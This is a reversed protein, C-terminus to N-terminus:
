DGFAYPPIGLSAVLWSAAGAAAPLVAAGGVIGLGVVVAGMFAANFLFWELYVGTSPPQATNLTRLWAVGVLWPLVGGLVVGLVSFPLMAAAAGAGVLLPILRPLRVPGQSGLGLGVGLALGGASLLAGLTAAAHGLAWGTMAILVGSGCLMPWGVCGTPVAPDGRSAPYVAAMFLSGGCCLLAVPAWPILGLLGGLLGLAAAGPVRPGPADLTEAPASSTAAPTTAAPEQTAVPVRPEEVPAAHDLPPLEAQPEEPVDAAPQEPQQVLPADSPEATASPLDAHQLLLTLCVWVPTAMM